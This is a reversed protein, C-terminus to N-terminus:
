CDILLHRGAVEVDDLPTNKWDGHGSSICWNRLSELSYLDRYPVIYAPDPLWKCWHEDDKVEFGFRWGVIRYESASITHVLVYPTSDHPDTPKLFLDRGVEKERVEIPGVDKWTQGSRNPSNEIAAYWKYGTAKAVVAEGRAGRKHRTLSDQVKHSMFDGRKRRMSDDHRFFAVRDALEIEEKSLSVAIM